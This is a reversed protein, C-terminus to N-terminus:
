KEPSTKYTPLLNKCGPTVDSIWTPLIPLQGGKGPPIYTVNWKSNRNTIEECAFIGSRIVAKIRIKTPASDNRVQVALIRGRYISPYGVFKPM